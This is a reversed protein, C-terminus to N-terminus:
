RTGTGSVVRTDKELKQAVQKNLAQARADAPDLKLIAQMIGQVEQYQELKFLIGGLTYMMNHDSPHLTLYKRLVKEADAYENRDHAIKVLSYIGAANEPNLELSKMVWKNAEVLEEMGQFALGLGLNAMEDEPALSVAKQFHLVAIDPSGKTLGVTGLGIYAKASYPDLEAAQIYSNKGAEPDGLKTFCDGILRYLNSRHHIPIDKIKFISEILDIAAMYQKTAVKAEVEVVQHDIATPEISVTKVAMADFIEEMEKTVKDKHYLNDFVAENKKVIDNRLAAATACKAIAEAISESSGTCFDFRHKGIYEEVLPARNALVPISNAMANLLRYPDGELRDRSSITSVYMLDAATLLTDFAERSPAVYVVRRDVGLAVLRDRLLPAFSGIGCFAIKLRRRLEANEEVALKIGHALDFLGEEWEIQGFHVILFDGDTFGLKELAKAKDKSTRTARKEVWPRFKTIREPEVGELLLARKAADTQVIFLDAANTVERRVTKIQNVDEGPFSVLNDTWIVLRYRKRWKAKVAQYAYVGLREKVVVIDFENLVKELGPLYTPNIDYDPLPVCKLDQFRSTQTLYGAISESTVVTVDYGKALLRFQDIEEVTPLNGFVLALKRKQGRDDRKTM